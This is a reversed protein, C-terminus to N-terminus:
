SREALRIVEAAIRDAAGPRALRRAAEGMASLRQPDGLLGDVERRLHPGDLEADPVVVAAGGEAMWRANKEQHGATAHPYPVLIAPLGAAALEFVSGGARAAVLDAAALADAFPEVYEVLRYHPPSGLAALRERLEPFDRRGSAHLISCPAEAGFAELAALNLTRAGISGGFVLLCDDAAPIGFRERATARDASGTGAPVPRGTVEYREGDRGELSFALFVRRALPALLRNAVGLHSDAETLFLPLRLSAAALGVPGAVYGGGGLVADVGMERLLGRARGVAAAALGAARAARLPNSRDLGAVRLPHFPFGAAPVLEAEAREGGVFEVEAGRDRLAVAIALAPVVHGATGGAAIAIR